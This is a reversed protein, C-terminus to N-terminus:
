NIVMLSFLGGIILCTLILRSSSFFNLASFWQFYLIYILWKEFWFQSICNLKWGPVPVVSVTNINYLICSFYKEFHLSSYKANTWKFLSKLYYQTPHWPPRHALKSCLLSQYPKVSLINLQFHAFLTQTFSEIHISTHWPFHIFFM